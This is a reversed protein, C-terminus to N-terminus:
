IRVYMSSTSTYGTNQSQIHNYQTTPAYMAQFQSDTMSQGKEELKKGILRLTEMENKSVDRLKDEFGDFVWETFDKIEDLRSMQMISCSIDDHMGLGCYVGNKNKGFNNLQTITSAYSANDIVQNVIIRRQSVMKISQEVYYSKGFKGTTMKFGVAKKYELNKKAANEQNVHFTKLFLAKYYLDHEAFKNIFNKGNLNVELLIRSNDIYGDGCKFVDFILRKMVFAMWEEDRENDVYLGVQRYRIVDERKYEPSYRSNRRVRSPSLLECEFINIVNYDSDKKGKILTEQGEATDIMFVFRKTLLENKTLLKPNFDPRWYLNNIVKAPFFDFDIHVYEKSIRDMLKFDDAKFVKESGAEFSLGFEQEFDDEGFEAKTAEKWAEDHEPVRWWDVRYPIFQSKGKMAKDYIEFFKNDKGKPTSTIVMQGIKSSSLTPYLSRWFERMLNKPVHACEDIYLLGNVTYGTLSTPNTTVAKVVTKNETTITKVQKVVLGPKLFFPLGEMVECAKLLIDQSTDGKNAAIASNSDSTFNLIWNLWCVTTTTKGTQRSSLFVAWGKQNREDFLKPDWCQLIEKYVYDAFEKGEMARLRGYHLIRLQDKQYDRLKVTKRGYDTLFKCYTEVYYVIDIYCRHIIELEEDTYEYVIGADRYNINGGYFPSNDVDIGQEKLAIIENIVKTSYVRATKKREALKNLNNETSIAM